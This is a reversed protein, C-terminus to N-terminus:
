ELDQVGYNVLQAVLIGITTALQFRRCCIAPPLASLHTGLSFALWEWCRLLDDL